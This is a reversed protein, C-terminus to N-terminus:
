QADTEGKPKIQHPCHPCTRWLRVRMANTPTFPRKQEAVCRDKKIEGLVPCVLSEHLFRGRVAAEIKGLDAKYRRGLVQNITSTSLKLQKSAAAQSTRDCEEALAKVWDPLDRGWAERARDLSLTM